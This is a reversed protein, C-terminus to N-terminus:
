AALAAVLEARKAAARPHPRAKRSNNCAWHALAVNALVDGASDPWSICELHEVTVCEGNPWAVSLDLGDGCLVCQLGDREILEEVTYPESPLLLKRAKRRAASARAKARYADPNEAAWRVAAAIQKDRNRVYWAALDQQIFKKNLTRYQKEKFRMEPNHVRRAITRKNVCERCERRLKTPSRRSYESAPKVTHCLSCRQEVVDAADPVPGAKRPPLAVAELTGRQRLRYYCRKCLGRAMRPTDCGSILCTSDGM